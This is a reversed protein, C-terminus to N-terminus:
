GRCNAILDIKGLQGIVATGTAADNYAISLLVWLVDGAVLGTPTVTFSKASHTLSNITQAATACIDANSTGDGDSKFVELDLTLSTDAITTKAGATVEISLSKGASYRDPLIIPFACKRTSASAKVDGTSIVPSETASVGSGFDFGLDDAAATAPLPQGSDWVVAELLSIGYRRSVLEMAAAPWECNDAAHRGYVEGDALFTTAM